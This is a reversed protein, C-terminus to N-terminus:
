AAIPKWTRGVEEVSRSKAAAVPSGTILFRASSPFDSVHADSPLSQEVGCSRNTEGDAYRQNHHAQYQPGYTHVSWMEEAGEIMPANYAGGGFGSGFPFAGVCQLQELGQGIVLAPRYSFGCAFALLLRASSEGGQAAGV